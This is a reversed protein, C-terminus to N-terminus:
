WAIGDKAIERLLRRERRRMDTVQETSYPLPSVSLYDPDAAGAAWGLDMVERREAETLGDIVVLVDVDSEEHADGRAHSGFLVFERLREGFQGGVASRFRELAAQVSPALM